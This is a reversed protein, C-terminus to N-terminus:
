HQKYRKFIGYSQASENTFLDPEPTDVATRTKSM